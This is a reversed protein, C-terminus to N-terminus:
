RDEELRRAYRETYIMGGCARESRMLSFSEVTMRAPAPRLSEFDADRPFVTERGLTIHPVFPRTELRFGSGRLAASLRRQLDFLPPCPETGAWCVGGRPFRGLGGTRLEFPPAAVSDMARRVDEERDTEGLFALTLHLNEGSTFRGRLAAAKLKETCDSLSKRMEGGFRVALFLRM